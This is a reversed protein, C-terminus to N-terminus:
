LGPRSTPCAPLVGRGSWSASLVVLLLSRGGVWLLFEGGALNGESLSGHGQQTLDPGLFQIWSANPSARTEQPRIKQPMSISHGLKKEEERLNQNVGTDCVDRQRRCSLSTTRPIPFPLRPPLSCRLGWSVNKQAEMQEWPFVTESVTPLQSPPFTVTGRFIRTLRFVLVCGEGQAEGPRVWQDEFCFIDWGMGARGDARSRRRKGETKRM